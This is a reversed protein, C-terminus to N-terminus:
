RTWDQEPQLDDVILYAVGNGAVQDTVGTHRVSFPFHGYSAKLLLDSALADVIRVISGGHHRAVNGDPVQEITIYGPNDCWALRILDDKEKQTMM